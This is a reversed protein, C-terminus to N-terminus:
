KLVTGEEIEFDIPTLFGDSLKIEGEQANTTASWIRIIKNGDNFFAGPYPHTVARVMKDAADMTMTSLIVGDEPKRGPWETADADNQRTFVVHDNVIDDWHTTGVKESFRHEYEAVEKGMTFMDSKIVRNIAELEKLDWTNDSLKYAV